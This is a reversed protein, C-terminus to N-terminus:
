MHSDLEVELYKDIDSNCQHKIVLVPHLGAVSFREGHLMAKYGRKNGFEYGARAIQDEEGFLSQITGKDILQVIAFRYEYSRCRQVSFAKVIELPVLNEPKVDCDAEEYEAPLLRCVYM